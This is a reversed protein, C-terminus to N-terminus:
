PVDSPKHLLMHEIKARLVDSSSDSDICGSELVRVDKNRRTAQVECADALQLPKMDSRHAM